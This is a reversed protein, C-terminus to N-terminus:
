QPPLKLFSRVLNETSIFGRTIKEVWGLSHGRKKADRKIRKAIIKISQGDEFEQQVRAAQTEVSTIHGKLVTQPEQIIRGSGSYIVNLDLALLKRLSDLIGWIDYDARLSRDLGGVVVDGSFLFGTASEYLVIHDPSHGPTEIVEFMKDGVELTDSLPEAKVPEPIGWFQRQFLRLDMERPNAMIPLAKPHAKVPVGREEKLPGAGGFHDEHAHTCVIQLIPIERVAILLEKATRPCGTDILVEEYCFAATFYWPKGFFTRAMKFRTVPGDVKKLLM